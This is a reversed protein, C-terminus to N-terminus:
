NAKLIDRQRGGVTAAYSACFAGTLMAVFLWLLLHATAKRAEDAAKRAADIVETVRKESEPQTLGTRAAIMQGLYTRDAPSIEKHMLANSLIRGAEETMSNSGDTRVQNSRFLSDVFYGGAGIEGGNSQAAATAGLQAAGGVMTTAASTLFYVTIVLGVAWVLLGHATDRFHVEDSHISAWKTRLRGATYGGMAYSIIQMIFLWLIAAGSITSASVGVNSWPSINSLGLGAGLSLLILSLAAAVFSGAIVASWSVGSVSSESNEAKREATSDNLVSQM